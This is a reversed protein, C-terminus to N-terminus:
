SRVAQGIAVVTLGAWAAWIPWPLDAAVSLAALVGGVAISTRVSHHQLVHGM